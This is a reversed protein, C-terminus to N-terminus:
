GICEVAVRITPANKGGHNHHYTQPNTPPVEDDLDSDDESDSGAQVHIDPKLEAAQLLPPMVVALYPVFEAGLCKCLRAGAQLMYSNTPDDPELGQSQV